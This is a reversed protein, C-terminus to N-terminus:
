VLVCLAARAALSVSHLSPFIPYLHLPLQTTITPSYRSLLRLVRRLNLASVATQQKPQAYLLKNSKTPTDSASSNTLLEIAPPCVSSIAVPFLSSQTNSISRPLELRTPKPSQTTRCRHTIQQHVCDRWPSEILESSRFIKPRNLIPHILINSQSCCLFSRFICASNSF